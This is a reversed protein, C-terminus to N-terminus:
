CAPECAVFLPSAPLLSSVSAPSRYGSVPLPRPSQMSAIILSDGILPQSNLTDIEGFWDAATWDIATGETLM